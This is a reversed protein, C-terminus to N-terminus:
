TYVFRHTRVSQILGLLGFTTLASSGGYSVLPCPIGTTPLFGILMAANFCMQMMVTCIATAAVISGTVDAAEFAAVVGRQFLILYLMLVALIGIFGFEEAIVALIFDNHKAPLFGTRTQQGRGFGMGFLGGQGISIKSQHVQYGTNAIDEAPFVFSYIREKQYDKLFIVWNPRYVVGLVVLAILLAGGTTLWMSAKNGLLFHPVLLIPLFVMATGLDPQLSILFVPLGVICCSALFDLISSQREQYRSFFKAVLLLTTIKAFESPQLSFFPLRIWSRAGNVKHGIWLVLLLSLLGLVYWLLGREVLGRIDIRALLFYLVLGGVVWVTQKIWLQSLGPDGRTASFVFIIGVLSLMFAAVFFTRDMLGLRNM